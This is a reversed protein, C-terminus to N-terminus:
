SAIVVTDPFVTLGVAGQVMDSTSQPSEACRSLIAMAAIHGTANTTSGQLVSVNVYRDRAVGAPIDCIVLGHNTSTTVSQTAVVTVFTTNDDSDGFSIVSSGNTTTSPVISVVLRVEDYGRTDCSGSVTEAATVAANILPILVANQNEQM